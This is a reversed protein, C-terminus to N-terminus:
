LVQQNKNMGAGMVMRHHRDQRPTGHDDHDDASDHSPQHVGRAEPREVFLAVEELM